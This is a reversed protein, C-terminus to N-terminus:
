VVPATIAFSIYRADSPAINTAQDFEFTLDAIQQDGFKSTRSFHPVINHVFEGQDIDESLVVLSCM